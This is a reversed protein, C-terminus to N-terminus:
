RRRDCVVAERAGCGQRLISGLDLFHVFGISVSLIKQGTKIMM